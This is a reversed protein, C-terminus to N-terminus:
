VAIAALARAAVMEPTVLTLCERTACGNPLGREFDRYFCPRCPLDSAVVHGLLPHWARDNSPGFVTVVPTGVASALHAVGGDNALLVACRELVAALEGVSTRGILSSVRHGLLIAVGRAAEEDQRTGVLVCAMDEGAMVLGAAEAFREAPWRRGPGYWGTGAHIALIRRDRATDELLQQAAHRDESSIPPAELRLDGEANLLGAVELWYEAEHRFGFGRDKVRETLFWGRGNDVGLRRRAGSALALAAFKWAGWRTVLHHFVVVTSAQEGRLRKILRVIAALARPDAVSIPRDFVHKDVEIAADVLGLGLLYACATSKGLLVLRADPLRKRVARIAPVTLIADGLDGFQFLLITQRM